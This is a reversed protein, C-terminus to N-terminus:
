VRRKEEELLDSMTQAAEFADFPSWVEYTIPPILPAESEELEKSLVRLLEIKDERPLARAEPLVEALSM